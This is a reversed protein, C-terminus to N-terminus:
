WGRCVRVPGYPGPRWWCRRGVYVPPGYFRPGYFRPRYYGGYGYGRGYGFGRGYGGYGGYGGYYAQSTVGDGATLSPDFAAPAATASSLSLGALTLGGVFAAALRKMISRMRNSAGRRIGWWLMMM